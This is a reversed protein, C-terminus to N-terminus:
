STFIKEIKVIGYERRINLEINLLEFFYILM